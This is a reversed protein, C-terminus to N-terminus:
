EIQSIGLHYGNYWKSYQQKVEIHKPHSSFVKISDKDQWYYTSNLWQGDDSQWIEKGIFGDM